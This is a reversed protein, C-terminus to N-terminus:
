SGAHDIRYIRGGTTKTSALRIGRKKLAGAFFGRVSHQQWGTEAAIQAITAGEPRQLMRIVEAQKSNERTRRERAPPSDTKPESPGSAVEADPDIACEPCANGFGHVQTCPLDPSLARQGESTVYCGEDDYAVLGQSGLATIVRSAAGGRVHPIATKILDSTIRGENTHVASHLLARQTDTLKITM